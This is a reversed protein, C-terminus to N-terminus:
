VNSANLKRRSIKQTDFYIKASYSVRQATKFYNQSTKVKSIAAWSAPFKLFFIHFVTPTDDNLVM